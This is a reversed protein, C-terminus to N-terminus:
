STAAIEWSYLGPFTALPGHHVKSSSSLYQWLAWPANQLSRGMSHWRLVRAACYQLARFVFLEGDTTLKSQLDLVQFNFMHRVPCLLLSCRGPRRRTMEKSRLAGLVLSPGSGSRPRCRASGHSLMTESGGVCIRSGAALRMLDDSPHRWGSQPPFPFLSFAACSFPPSLSVSSTITITTRVRRAPSSLMPQESKPGM